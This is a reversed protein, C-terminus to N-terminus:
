KSNLAKAIKDLKGSQELDALASLSKEIRELTIAYRDLRDFNASREVRALGDALKQTSDRLRGGTIKVSEVLRKEQEVLNDMSNGIIKTYENIQKNVEDLEVTMKKVRGKFFTKTIQIDKTVILDLDSKLFMPGEKTYKDPKILGDFFLNMVVVELERQRARRKSLRKFDYKRREKM